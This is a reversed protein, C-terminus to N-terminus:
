TPGTIAPLTNIRFIPQISGVIEGSWNKIEPKHFATLKKAELSTIWDLQLMAETVAPFLARPAGDEVKLALGVGQGALMAAFIGEAGMKGIVRGQTVEILATDYRDTGAIFRPHTVIADLLVRCASAYFRTQPVADPKSLRAYAMALKSLPMSYVPVGCGDIGMSLQEPHTGTFLAITDRMMLQVPHEPHIYDHTSIGLHKALALMGAHKGSCNNYLPGLEEGIRKLAAATPKHWPTHIGCQLDRADLGTASLVNKVADVHDSEGSHSSCFIAIQQPSLQCQEVAGSTIVPLTQLLKAASRAYTTLHPHGVEHSLQGETNVVALHGYHISEVIDGRYVHVLPIASTHM